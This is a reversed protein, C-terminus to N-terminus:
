IKINILKRIVLFGIIQGVVVFAIAYKGEDVKILESLYDPATAYLFLAMFIPLVALIYGSLRGQATYVRVQRRLKLRERITHALKELTESLNGGVERHINVATVFLRFDISPMREMMHALADRMSLGLTQEDYATKFLGAVPEPMESGVMQIAGSFSHGARLSRAIMDLAGPFGETFRTYRKKGRIQLYVVPVALGIFFPIAAVILGARLAAGVALGTLSSAFIVLLFIKVEIKLGARDILRDLWRVPRFKYLFKDFPTMERLIEVALASPLGEDAKIALKRLRRRLESQPSSRAAAYGMYVAILGLSGAIFFLITILLM